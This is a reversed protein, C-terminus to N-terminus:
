TDGLQVLVHAPNQIQDQIKFDVRLITDAFHGSAFLVRKIGQPHLAPAELYPSDIRM